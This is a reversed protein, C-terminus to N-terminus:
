DGYESRVGAPTLASVYHQPLHDDLSAHFPLKRLVQIQNALLTLPAGLLNQLGTLQKMPKPNHRWGAPALYQYEQGFHKFKGSMAPPIQPAADHQYIYRIVNRGLFPHADCADAFQPTGVMLQGITYVARLRAAILAYDTETMLMVAMLAAMAGGLSHGTIYLAELPNPMRGRGPLVSKGEVARRLAAIVEYRTARVNRYYGAHVGYEQAVGPLPISIMDPQMDINTFWEIINGPSTGRYCLVVVRGDRSQVLFSSSFIFMADVTQSIMRCHNDEMGLRAMITAMTPADSYAYAAGVAMVYALAPDPHVAASALMDTLKPYVPFTRTKNPKLPRLQAYPPAISDTVLM